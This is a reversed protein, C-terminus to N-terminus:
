RLKWYRFKARLLKEQLKRKAKFGPGVNLDSARWKGSLFVDDFQQMVRPPAYDAAASQGLAADASNAEYTVLLRILDARTRYVWEEAPSMAVHNQDMGGAWTFVPKGHFMFEANALGFSEGIKKANLGADCAAIFDSKQQSAVRAPLFLARDHEVFPMTNLFVFFLNSRKELAERVARQAFELNFQDYGGYRGVVFADEPIGTEERFDSAPAPLDVIHPVHPAQGGTMWDALWKSVYAYVDGHPDFHRFVAHVGVRTAADEPVPGLGGNIFYCFDLKEAAAAARFSANDEYAVLQLKSAFKTLVEPNSSTKDYFVLAEHGLHEQVGCAYDYVAVSMGRENIAGADFGVRM